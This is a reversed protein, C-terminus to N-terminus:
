NMSSLRKMVKQLDDWTRKKLEPRLLLVEPSWTSIFGEEQQLANTSDTFQVVQRYNSQVRHLDLGTGSTSLIEFSGEKLKMALIMKQLLEQAPASLEKELLFLVAKPEASVESASVSKSIAAQAQVAAEQHRPFLVSQVGLVQRFYLLLAQSNSPTESTM